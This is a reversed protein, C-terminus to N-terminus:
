TSDLIPLFVESFPKRKESLQMQIPLQWNDFGQVPYKDDSTLPNLFAGLIEGLVLPSM